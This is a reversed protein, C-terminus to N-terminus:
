SLPFDIDIGFPLVVRGRRKLERSKLWRSDLEKDAEKIAERATAANPSIQLALALDILPPSLNVATTRGANRSELKVTVGDSVTEGFRKWERQAREHVPQNLAVDDAMGQSDSRRREVGVAIARANENLQLNRFLGFLHASVIDPVADLAEMQSTEDQQNWGRIQIARSSIRKGNPNVRTAVVLHRPIQLGTNNITLAINKAQKSWAQPCANSSAMNRNTGKAEVVAWEAPNVSVATSRLALFDPSLVKGKLPWAQLKPTPFPFDWEQISVPVVANPYFASIPAIWRYGDRALYHRSGAVGLMWSLM